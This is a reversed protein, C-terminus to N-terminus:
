KLERKFVGIFRDFDNKNVTAGCAMEHGGGYGDVGVLAKELIPRVKIKMSRVSMKYYGKHERAIIILKDPKLYQVHNSIYSTYSVDGTPYTFLLLKGESKTDLIKKLMSDYFKLKKQAYKYIYKGRSSEQNLIEYPNEIKLLINANKISDSATGKVAFNFIKILEGIRTSFNAEAPDKIKLDFLDPYEKIFEKIYSPIYWDSISGLVGLWLSSKTIEYCWYTTPREDNPTIFKPNYYHTGKRKSPTHHDIWVIPVNVKDIFDQSVEFIDLIVVLDPSLENVKRVYDASMEKARKVVVGKGRQLYKMLLLYSCLGDPDDDFFILPNESKDLYNKIEGIQEKTIM